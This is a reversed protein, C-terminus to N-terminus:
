KGKPYLGKPHSQGEQTQHRAHLLPVTCAVGSCTLLTLEEVGSLAFVAPARAHLCGTLVRVSASHSQPWFSAAPSQSLIFPWRRAAKLSPKVPAATGVPQPQISSSSSAPQSPLCVREGGLVLASHLSPCLPAGALPSLGLDLAPWGRESDAREDVFSVFQKRGQLTGCLGCLTYTVVTPCTQGLAHM